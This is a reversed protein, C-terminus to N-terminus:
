INHPHEVNRKKDITYRYLSSTYRCHVYTVAFYWRWKTINNTLPHTCYSTVPTSVLSFRNTSVISSYIVAKNILTKEVGVSVWGRDRKKFDMRKIYVMTCWIRPQYFNSTSDWDPNLGMRLETWDPNLGLRPQTWDPNLGNPTWDWEPNLGMRPETGNQTPDMRPETGNPIWDM